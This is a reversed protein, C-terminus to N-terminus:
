EDDIAKKQKFFYSNHIFFVLVPVSAIVFVARHESAKRINFPDFKLIGLILASPITFLAHALWAAPLLLLRYVKKINLKWSVISIVVISLMIITNIRWEALTSYEFSTAFHTNVSLLLGYSFLTILIKKTHM